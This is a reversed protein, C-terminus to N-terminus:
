IDVSYYFCKRWPHMESTLRASAQFHVRESASSFCCVAELPSAVYYISLTASASKVWPHIESPLRVARSLVLYFVFESAQPHVRESASSFCRVAELPSVVYYISLIAYASKRRPHKVSPLSVSALSCSLFVFESAQLHVGSPLRVSAQLHVRERVLSVVSLVRYLGSLLSFYYHKPFGWFAFM